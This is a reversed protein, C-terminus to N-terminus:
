SRSFVDFSRLLFVSMTMELQCEGIEISVFSTLSNSYINSYLQHLQNQSFGQYIPEPISVSIPYCECAHNSWNSDNSYEYEWLTMKVYKSFQSFFIDDIIKCFILQAQMM